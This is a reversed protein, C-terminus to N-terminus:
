KTPHCWLSLSCSNSCARPSPSPCSFRAHQLGHPQLTLCSQTVSCSCCCYHIGEAYCNCILIQMQAKSPFLTLCPSGHHSLLLYDVQWYVLSLLGLNLGQTPFIGQLLFHCGVGTKKGPFDWPCLLRTPLLAHPRLSESVVSRNWKVKSRKIFFLKHNASSKWQPFTFLM